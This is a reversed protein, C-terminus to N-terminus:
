SFKLALGYVYQFKCVVVIEFVQRKIEFEKTKMKEDSVLFMCYSNPKELYVVALENYRERERSWNPLNQKAEM